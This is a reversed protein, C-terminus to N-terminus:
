FSGGCVDGLTQKPSRYDGGNEMGIIALWQPCVFLWGLWLLYKMSVLAIATSYIAATYISVYETILKRLTRYKCVPQQFM